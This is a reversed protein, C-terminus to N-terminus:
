ASLGTFSFTGEDTDLDVVQATRTELWQQFLAASQPAPVMDYIVKGDADKVSKGDEGKRAVKAQHKPAYAIAFNLMNVWQDQPMAPFMVRAAAESSLCAKLNDKGLRARSFTSELNKAAATKGAARLAEARTHVNQLIVALIVPHIATWAREISALGGAGSLFNAVRDATLPINGDFVAKALRKASTLLAGSLIKEVVQRVKPSTMLEPLPPCEIAYFAAPYAFPEGTPQTLETDTYIVHVAVPGFTTGVPVTCTYAGTDDLSITLASFTEGTDPDTVVPFTDSLLTEPDPVGLAAAKNLLEAIADLAAANAIYVAPTFFKRAM